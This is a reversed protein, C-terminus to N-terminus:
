FNIKQVIKLLEVPSNILYDPEHKELIEVSNFGWSVAVSIVGSIKAADIDRTEDGIYIIDSSKCGFDKIIKKIARSKGFLSSESIFEFCDLGNKALYLKVNKSSNSTLIGIKYSQSLEEIVEKMNPQLRAEFIREKFKRRGKFLLFPLRWKSVKFKEFIEMSSLNRLESLNEPEIKKFHLEESMDNFVAVVQALSDVITGDFDFIIMKDKM